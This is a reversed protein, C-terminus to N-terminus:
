ADPLEGLTAKCGCHVCIGIRNGEDDIDFTIKHNCNIDGVSLVKINQNSRSIHRLLVEEQERELIVQPNEANPDVITQWLEADSDPYPKSFLSKTRYKAQVYESHFRHIVSKTISVIDDQTLKGIGIRLCNLAAEQRVDSRYHEPLHLTTEDIANIGTNNAFIAEFEPDYIPFTQRRPQHVRFTKVWVSPILGHFTINQSDLEDSLNHLTEGFLSNGNKLRLLTTQMAQLGWMGVFPNQPHPFCCISAFSSDNKVVAILQRINPINLTVRYLLLYIKPLALTHNYKRYRNHGREAIDMATYSNYLSAIFDAPFWRLDDLEISKTSNNFYTVEKPLLGNLSTIISDPVVSIIKNNRELNDDAM